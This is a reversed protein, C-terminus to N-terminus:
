NFLLIYGNLSTAILLWLFYPLILVSKWNMEKQYNFLFFGILLTLITISILGVVVNQFYFFIPNWAINFIWQTGFLGVLLKKNEIEKWLIAMYGAFCIMITTWAFGFGSGPPTWPPQNLSQYWDSTVGPRTFIGGIGLAAFNLFLFLIIRSAM